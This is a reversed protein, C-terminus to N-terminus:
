RQSCVLSMESLYYVTLDHRACYNNFNEGTSSIFTVRRSLERFSTFYTHKNNNYVHQRVHMKLPNKRGRILTTNLIVVVWSFAYEVRVLKITGSFLFFTEYTYNSYM